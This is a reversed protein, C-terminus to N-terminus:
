GELPIREVMDPLEMAFSASPITENIVPNSYILEIYDAQDLRELKIYKPLYTNGLKVFDDWRVQCGTLSAHPYIFKEPYLWYPNLWLNYFCHNDQYCFQLLYHKEPKLYSFKLSYEAPNPLSVGGLLINVLEEVPLRIGLFRYVNLSSPAGILVKKDAPVYCLMKNKNAIIFQVPQMFMNLVELRLLNPKQVSLSANFSRKEQQSVINVQAITRLSKFYENRQQLYALTQKDTVEKKLSREGSPTLKYCGSLFFSLWILSGIIKYFRRKFFLDYISM